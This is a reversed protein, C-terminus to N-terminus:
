VIKLILFSFAIEESNEFYRLSPDAFSLIQGNGFYIFLNISGQRGTDDGDWWTLM